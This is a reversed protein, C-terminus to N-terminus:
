PSFTTLRSFPTITVAQTLATSSASETGPSPAQLRTLGPPCCAHLVTLSGPLTSFVFSKFGAQRGAQRAPQAPASSAYEADCFLRVPYGKSWDSRARTSFAHKRLQATSHVLGPLTKSKAMGKLGYPSPAATTCSSITSLSTM